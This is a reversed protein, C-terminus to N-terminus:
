AKEIIEITAKKENILMSISLVYGSLESTFKVFKYPNALLTNLDDNDFRTTVMHKIPKIKPAPLISLQIDQNEAIQLGNYATILTSFKQSTQFKIPNSTRKQLAPTYKDANRILSWAPTFFLNLSDSKYPSSDNIITMNQGREAFWGHEAEPATERQTKLIFIHNDEDIDESNNGNDIPKNLCNVIGTTDGRIEDCRLDLDNPTKL